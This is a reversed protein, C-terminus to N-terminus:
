SASATGAPFQSQRRTRKTEYMLHDAADLSERIPHGEAVALGWSFHVPMTGHQRIRFNLLHEQIGNMRAEVLQQETTRFFIVFEDGGWRFALDEERISRRILSGVGHLIEDGVLHGFKDNLLKFDDMDCVVVIGPFDRQEEMWASMASRSQLGTLPDVVSHRVTESRLRTLEENLNRLLQRQSELRVAIMVLGIAFAIQLPAYLVVVLRDTQALYQIAFLSGLGRVVWLFIWLALGKPTLSKRLYILVGCFLATTFLEVAIPVPGPSM